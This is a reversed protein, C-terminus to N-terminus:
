WTVKLRVKNLTRYRRSVKQMARLLRVRFRHRILTQHIAEYDVEQLKRPAYVSLHYEEILIRKAM